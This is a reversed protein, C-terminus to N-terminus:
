KLSLTPTLGHTIVSEEQKGCRYCAGNIYFHGYVDCTNVMRGDLEMKYPPKEKRNAARKLTTSEDGAVRILTNFLKPHTFQLMYIRYDLGFPCIWCGARDFYNYVPNIELNHTWIYCWIEAARWDLMPQITQQTPIHKHAKRLPQTMRYLGEWRREGSFVSVEQHDFKEELYKTFPAFKQTKCCWRNGTKPFGKEKCLNFFNSESKAIDIRNGNNNNRNILSYTEPFELRTDIFVRQLNFDSLIHALVVSDKGGSFSIIANKSHRLEWEAFDKTVRTLKDIHPRNAIVFSQIDLGSVPRKILSTVELDNKKLQVEAVPFDRTIVKRRYMRDSFMFFIGEGLIADGMKQNFFQKEFSSIPRIEINSVHSLPRTTGHEPCLGDIILTDCKDCWGYM